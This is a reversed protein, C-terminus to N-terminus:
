MTFEFEKFQEPVDASSTANDYSLLTQTLDQGMATINYLTGDEFGMFDAAQCESGDGTQFRKNFTNLGYGASWAGFAACGKSTQSGRYYFNQRDSEDCGQKGYARLEVRWDGPIHDIALSLGFKAFRCCTQYILMPMLVNALAPVIEECQPELKSM